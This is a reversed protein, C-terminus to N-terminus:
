HLSLLGDLTGKDSNIFGNHRWNASSHQLCKFETVKCIPIWIM